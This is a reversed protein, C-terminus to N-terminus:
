LRRTPRPALAADSGQAPTAKLSACSRSPAFRLAKMLNFMRESAIGTRAADADSNCIHLAASYLSYGEFLRQCFRAFDGALSPRGVDVPPRQIEGPAVANCRRLGVMPGDSRGRSSAISRVPACFPCVGWESQDARPRCGWLRRGVM